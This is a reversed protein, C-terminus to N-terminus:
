KRFQYEESGSKGLNRPLPNFASGYSYGSRKAPGHEDFYNLLLNPRKVPVGLKSPQTLPQPIDARLGPIATALPNAIPKSGAYTNPPTANFGVGQYSFPALGVNLGAPNGQRQNIKAAHQDVLHAYPTQQAGAQQQYFRNLNSPMPIGTPQPRQNADYIPIQSRSQTIPSNMNPMPVVNTERQPIGTPMGFASNLYTNRNNAVNGQNFLLHREGPPPAMLTPLQFTSAPAEKPALAPAPVPTTAKVKDTAPSSKLNHKKAYADWAAQDAPDKYKRSGDPHFWEDNALWFKKDADKYFKDELIMEAEYDKDGVDSSRLEYLARDTPSMPARKSKLYAQYDGGFAAAKQAKYANIQKIQAPTAPRHLPNTYRVM